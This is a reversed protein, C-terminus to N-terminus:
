GCQEVLMKLRLASGEFGGKPMNTVSLVLGYRRREACQYWVSLATPAM